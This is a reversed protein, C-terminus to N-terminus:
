SACPLEIRVVTPGGDPSSLLLRGGATAVRDALGTLGSGRGPDAGGRGNDRVEAILTAGDRRVDVAAESAGSHKAVNTLAEAIAFYAVREVAAPPRPGDV